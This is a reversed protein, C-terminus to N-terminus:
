RPPGAHLNVGHQQHKRPYNLRDLEGRARDIRVLTGHIGVRHRHQGTVLPRPM